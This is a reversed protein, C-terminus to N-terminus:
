VVDSKEIFDFRDRSMRYLIQMSVRGLAEKSSIFGGTLVASQAIIFDVM